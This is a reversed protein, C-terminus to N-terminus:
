IDLIILALAANPFILRAPYKAVVTMMDVDQTQRPMHHFIQVNLHSISHNYIHQNGFSWILLALLDSTIM